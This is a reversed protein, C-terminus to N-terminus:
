GTDFVNRGLQLGLVNVLKGSFCSIKHFLTRRNGNTCERCNAQEYDTQKGAAAVFVVFGSWCCLPPGRKAVRYRSEVAVQHSAAGIAQPRLQRTQHLVAPKRCGPEVSAGHRRSPQPKHTQLSRSQALRSSRTRRQRTALGRASRQDPKPSQSLRKPKNPEPLKKCRAFVGAALLPLFNM